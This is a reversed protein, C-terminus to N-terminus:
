KKVEELGFEYRFVRIIQIVSMVCGVFRCLSQTIMMTLLLKASNGVSRVTAQNSLKAGLWLTILYRVLKQKKTRLESGHIFRKECKSNVLTKGGRKACINVTLGVDTILIVQELHKSMIASKASQLLVLSETTKIIISNRLPSFIRVDTVNGFNSERKLLM